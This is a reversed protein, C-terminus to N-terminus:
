GRCLRRILLYSAACIGAAAIFKLMMKRHKKGPGIMFQGKDINVTVDWDKIYPYHVSQKYADLSEYNKLEVIAAFMRGVVPLKDMKSLQKFALTVADTNLFQLFKQEQETNATKKLYRSFKM